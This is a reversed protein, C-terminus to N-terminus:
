KVIKVKRHELYSGARSLTKAGAINQGRSVDLTVRATGICNRDNGHMDM